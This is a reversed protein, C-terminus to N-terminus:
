LTKKSMKLGKNWAVQLGRKGKNWPPYNKKKGKLAKSIKDCTEKSQKKDLMGSPKGILKVIRKQIHEPTQKRGTMAKSQKQRSELSRHKLKKGKSWGICGKKAKSLNDAAIRVREDTEKTLGKNWGVWGKNWGRHGSQSKSQKRRTEESVPPRTKWAERMKDRTEDSPIVGLTSGATKSINLFPNLNKIFDNETDILEEERCFLLISFELDDEGYKNYHRQLKSNKHKGNRLEEFHDRRRGILDVASGVYCRDPHINSSIKYIGSFRM